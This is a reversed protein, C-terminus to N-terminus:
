PAPLNTSRKIIQQAAACRGGGMCAPWVSRRHQLMPVGIVVFPEHRAEPAASPPSRASCRDLCTWSVTLMSHWRCVAGGACCARHQKAHRLLWPVMMDCIPLRGDDAASHWPTGPQHVSGKFGPKRAPPPCPLIPLAGCRGAAPTPGPTPGGSLHAWKNGGTRDPQATDNKRESADPQSFLPIIWRM